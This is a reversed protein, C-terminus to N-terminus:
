GPTLLNNVARQASPCLVGMGGADRLPPVEPARYSSPSVWEDGYGVLRAHKDARILELRVKYTPV